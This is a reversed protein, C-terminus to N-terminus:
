APPCEQHLHPVRHNEHRTGSLIRDIESAPCLVRSGLKVVRIQGAATLRDFTARSIRLQECAETVLYAAQPQRTAPKTETTTM